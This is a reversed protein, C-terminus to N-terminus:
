VRDRRLVRGVGHRPARDPRPRGLTLHVALEGRTERHRDTELVAGVAVHLDGDIGDTSARMRMAEEAHGLLPEARDDRRAAIGVAVDDQAAALATRVEVIGAHAPFRRGADEALECLGHAISSPYLRPLPPGNRPGGVNM